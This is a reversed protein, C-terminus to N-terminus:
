QGARATTSDPSADVRKGRRFQVAPDALRHEILAVLPAYSIAGEIKTGEVFMTPTAVIGRYGGEFMAAWVGDETSRRSSCQSLSDRSAGSARIAAEVAAEDLEAGRIAAYFKWAGDTQGLCYSALAARFALPNEAPSRPVQHYVWLVDSGFKRRASDVASASLRCFRCGFDSYLDVRVKANGRAIAQGPPAGTNAPAQSAVWRIDTRLAAVQRFGYMVALSNLFLVVALMYTAVNQESRASSSEAGVSRDTM